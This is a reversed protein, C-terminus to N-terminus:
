SELFYPFGQGSGTLIRPITVCEEHDSFDDLEQSLEPRLLPQAFPDILEGSQHVVRVQKPLSPTAGDFVPGSVDSLQQPSLRGRYLPLPLEWIVGLQRLM